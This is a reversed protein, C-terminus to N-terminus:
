FVSVYRLPCIAGGSLLVPLVTLLRKPRSPDKAFYGAVFVIFSFKAIESPQVTIGGVRIWRKAGYNEFGLPTFVLALLVLSVLMLWIGTKRYKRYDFFATFVAAGYGLLLGVIHKQASYYENGYTAACNYRSASYVATLGVLSLVAVAILLLIDGHKKKNILNEHSIIAKNTLM